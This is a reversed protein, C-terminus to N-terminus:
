LYKKPDKTAHIVSSSIIYDYLKFRLVKPCLRTFISSRIISIWSKNIIFHKRLYLNIVSRKKRIITSTIGTSVDTNLGFETYEPKSKLLGRRSTQYEIQRKIYQMIDVYDCHYVEAGHIYHIEYGKLAARFGFDLDESDRLNLDFGGVDSFVKANISLNQTTCGYGKPVGYKRYANEWKAENYRRFKLFDMEPYRETDQQVSFSCLCNPYIRQAEIHNKVFDEDFEMDDDVFILLDGKALKAGANRASSRGQNVQEIIKIIPNGNNRLWDISGDSSGDVVIIIELPKYKQSLLSRLVIPLKVKGNYTPVIISANIM